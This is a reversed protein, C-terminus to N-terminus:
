VEYGVNAVSRATRADGKRKEGFDEARGDIPTIREIFVFVENGHDQANEDNQVENTM